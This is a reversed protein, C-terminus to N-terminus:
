VASKDAVRYGDKDAIHATETHEPLTVKYGAHAAAKVGVAATDERWPGFENVARGTGTTYSSVSREAAYIITETPVGGDCARFANNGHLIGKPYANGSQWHLVTIAVPASYPTEPEGQLRQAEVMAEEATEHTSHWVTHHKANSGIGQVEIVDILYAEKRM